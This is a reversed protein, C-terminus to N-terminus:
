QNTRGTQNAANRAHAAAAIMKMRAVANHHPTLPERPSDVLEDWSMASYGTDAIFDRVPATLDPPLESFFRRINALWVPNELVKKARAEPRIYRLLQRVTCALVDLRGDDRWRRVTALWGATDDLILKPELPKETGLLMRLLASAHANGVLGAISSALAATTPEDLAQLDPVTSLVKSVYTWSRPTSFGEADSFPNDLLAIYDTVLPHVGGVGRAWELWLVPDAKVTVRIFRSLLALDMPATFYRGAERPNVTTLPLWKPPLTLDHIRRATLIQLAAHRTSESSRNLEELLLLGCPQSAKPLFDPPAFKTFGDERYPYGCIDSTEVISLDRDIIPIQLQRAAEHVSESKGVGHPGEIMLPVGAAYATKIISVLPPGVPVALSTDPTPSMAAANAAIM